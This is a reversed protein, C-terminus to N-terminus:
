CTVSVEELAMGLLECRRKPPMEMFLEELTPAPHGPSPSASFTSHPGGVAARVLDTGGATCGCCITLKPLRSYHM